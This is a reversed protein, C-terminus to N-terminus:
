EATLELTLSTWPRSLSGSVNLGAYKLVRGSVVKGNLNSPKSPNLPTLDKIRYNKNEDVGDLRVKPMAQGNLYDTRYVFLVAHDKTEDAYMLAAMAGKDYPSILRYQDGLQIVPRVSKYAEIARKSFEKERDSMNKPQIEMGLRGSMAVDFRFKIPVERGTQHNPSASVHSAMAIAPYFHSDSWQIFLRQYADTNDSTWFEDFWPLLGYGVRGGGSACLQITVDPYKARIRDLVKHLGRHYRVYLESQKDKPLYLSGYNMIDANCDWKIYAIEPNESLLKDTVGFVFDQVKPNCLDLVVQTGGRGQRLPRNTHQLVWDPHKEYLESKTNAMEPEIWIGFKIGNRRASQTLGGIGQPLKKECVMWDGLSSKDNNRPYKDGFWGDDMVFLEGGLSAIDGMMQDMTEQNVNFYVGEWSNLLVDRLKDGNAIAYLRAWKHFARSVGGKGDKSFTMVFEPTSFTEGPVLSYLSTDDNIGSIVNLRNASAEIRTKYNGSWLLNCGFVEGANEAPKGDISIMFGPNSGFANRLGAKDAIVTQGDPLKEETMYSESGWGGHFQTLYNNSRTFPVSASAFTILKVAGKKANNTIDYWTSFVETGAYHRFYQRVTLPYVRDTFTLILLEGKGDTTRRLSDMKLDLSMNGDPMEVSLAKEGNPDPGFTPLTNGTFNANVGFLGSIDDSSIRPGFYQYYATGGDNTTVVLSSKDSSLVHTRNAQAYGGAPAAVLMFATLVTTLFRNKM